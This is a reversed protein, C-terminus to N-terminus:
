VAAKAAPKKQQRLEISKLAKQAEAALSSKGATFKAIYESSKESGIKGLTTFAAMLLTSQDPKPGSLKLRSM